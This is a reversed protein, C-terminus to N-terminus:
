HVIITERELEAVMGRLRREFVPQSWASVKHFSLLHSDSVPCAFGAPWYPLEELIHYDSGVM